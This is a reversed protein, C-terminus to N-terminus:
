NSNPKNCISHRCVHIRTRTYDAKVPATVNALYDLDLELQSTSLRLKLDQERNIIAKSIGEIKMSAEIREREKKLKRDSLPHKRTWIFESNFFMLLILLGLLLLNLRELFFALIPDAFNM